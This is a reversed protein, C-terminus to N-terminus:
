GLAGDGLGTGATKKFFGFVFILYIIVLVGGMSGMLYDIRDGGGDMVRSTFKNFLLLTICILSMPMYLFRKKVPASVTTKELIDKNLYPQNKWQAFAESITQPYGATKKALWKNLQLGEEVGVRSSEYEAAWEEIAKDSLPNIKVGELKGDLDIISSASNVIVFALGGQMFNLIDRRVTEPLTGAEIICIGNDLQTLAKQVGGLLTNVTTGNSSIQKEPLTVTYSSFQFLLEQLFSKRATVLPIFFSLQNKRCLRKHLEAAIASKGIGRDGHLLVSRRSKLHQLIQTLEEERGYLKKYLM